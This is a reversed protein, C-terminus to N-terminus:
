NRILESYGDLREFLCNAIELGEVGQECNSDSDFPSTVEAHVAARRAIAWDGGGDSPLGHPSLTSM